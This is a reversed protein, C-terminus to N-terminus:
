FPAAEEGVAEDDFSEPTVDIARGTLERAWEDATPLLEAPTRDATIKVDPVYFTGLPNTVKTTTVEFVRTWPKERRMRLTSFVRKGVKASSKAFSLIILDGLETMAAVNYTETCLPPKNGDWRSLPCSECLVGPEGVGQYMDLSRCKLGDGESLPVGLAAEIAPRREMRVLFIRQKFPLFPIFRLTPGYNEGTLTNFLDGVKAVEDNAEKSMQQVVKIRPPIFDTGDLSTQGFTMRTDSEEYRQMAGM